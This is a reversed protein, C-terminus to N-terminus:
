AEVMKARLLDPRRRSVVEDFIDILPSHPM